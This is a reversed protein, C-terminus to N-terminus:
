IALCTANRNVAIVGEGTELTSSDGLTAVSLSQPSEIQLIALDSADDRMILRADFQERNYLRVTINDINDIVHANTVIHGDASIVIGSGLSGLSVTKEAPGQRDSTKVAIKRETAINVVSPRAQKIVNVFNPGSFRTAPDAQQPTDSPNCGVTLLCGLVTYWLRTNINLRSM